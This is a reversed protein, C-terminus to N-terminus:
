DVWQYQYFSLLRWNSRYMQKDEGKEYNTILNCVVNEPCLFEILFITYIFACGIDIYKNM